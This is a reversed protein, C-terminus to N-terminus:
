GRGCVERLRESVAKFDRQPDLGWVHAALDYVRGRSECAYCKFRREKVHCSPSRDDHFPCVVMGNRPVEEGTLLLWWEPLPMADVLEEPDHAEIKGSAIMRSIRARKRWTEDWRTRCPAPRKSVPAGIELLGVIMESERRAELGIRDMFSRQVPEPAALFERLHRNGVM